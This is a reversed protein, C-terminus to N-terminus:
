RGKGDPIGENDTLLKLLSKGFYFNWGAKCNEYCEVDPTLGSHTMTVRAGGNERAIEWIISTHNWEKKDKVFHLNSDRVEWVVRKEPVLETVALEVFTEGFRVTFTDGPQRAKGSFGKHTWWDSVRSIREVAEEPSLHGAISSRYDHREM